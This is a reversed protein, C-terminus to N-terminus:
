FMLSYCVYNFSFPRVIDKNNDDTPVVNNNSFKNANMIMETSCLTDVVRYQGFDMLDLEVNTKFKKGCNPQDCYMWIIGILHQRMLHSKLSTSYKASYKCDDQDCKYKKNKSM